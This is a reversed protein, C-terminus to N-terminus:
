ELKSSQESREKGNSVLTQSSVGIQCTDVFDYMSARAVIDAIDSPSPCEYPQL